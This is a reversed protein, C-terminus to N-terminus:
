DGCRRNEYFTNMRREAPLFEDSVIKWYDDDVIDWNWAKSKMEM